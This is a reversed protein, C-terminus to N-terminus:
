NNITLAKEGSKRTWYDFLYANKVTEMPTELYDWGDKDLTVEVEPDLTQLYEILHKVRVKKDESFNDEIDEKSELSNFEGNYIKEIEEYPITEIIDFNVDYENALAIQLTIDLSNWWKLVEENSSEIFKSFEKLHVLKHSKQLSTESSLKKSNPERYTGKKPTEALAEESSLTKNSPKKKTVHGQKKMDKSLQQKLTTPKTKM